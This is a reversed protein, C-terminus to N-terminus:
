TFASSSVLPCLRLKNNSMDSESVKKKKETARPLKNKEKKNYYFSIEGIRVCKKKIKLRGRFFQLM